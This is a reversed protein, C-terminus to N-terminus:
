EVFCIDSDYTLSNARKKKYGITLYENQYWEYMKRLGDIVSVQPNYGILEQAKTINAHTHPVDGACGAVYQISARKGVITEMIQIFDALVIPEGRGVNMIQYGLPNDIAGVVGNVIDDVFTFDRIMSGDGYVTIPKDHYMADMFIFPAMDMRGRPGYVTFFRLNTISIGYLHHYVWALLEGSRKTTGYPSLQKDVSDTESFAGFDRAGYVSSSSACVIHKVGFTHALEFITLTGINNSRFYEYPDKISM